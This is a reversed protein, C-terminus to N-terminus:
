PSRRLRYALRNLPGGLYDITGRRTLKRWQRHFRAQWELLKLRVPDRVASYTSRIRRREAVFRATQAVTKSGEHYRYFALNRPLHTFVAGRGGVRIWFEYDMMYQYSEDLYGHELLLRRRFFAAPQGIYNVGHLLVSYDFAIEKRVLFPRGAENVLTYDGYVVDAGTREFEAAVTHLVGEDYYDDSNLWAVVDGTARRLGANLAQTQGGDPGSTWFALNREHRRIIEVSGDTSGGDLILHEMDPYKQDLVSQITQGLYQAQNYSTTIISIRTM